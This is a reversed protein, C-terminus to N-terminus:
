AALTDLGALVARAQGVRLDCAVGVQDTLGDFAVLRVHRYPRSGDDIDVGPDVRSGDIVLARVEFDCNARSVGVHVGVSCEVAVARREISKGLTVIKMEIVHPLAISRVVFHM